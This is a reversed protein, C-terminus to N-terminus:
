GGIMVQAFAVITAGGLLKAISQKEDKVYSQELLVREKYWGNLRGETIKELAAEPKGENRSIEEITAREAAVDAEPVDERALYQPKTFAIHVAIEHALEESGNALVIAVANVGRGAQQHLYTDVVQGDKAELRVVRGISINEKLTTCLTAIEDDFKSAAGDGEAAVRAAIEDVLSVFDPSKAVFDTECRLEVLAAANGDRVSAVAGESAERDSRKAASAMGHVRLWQVAEDMDGDNEVLAKKADLMGVGTSQRLAQVDKATFKTNEGPM